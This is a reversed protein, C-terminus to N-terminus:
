SGRSARAAVQFVKKNDNIYWERSSFSSVSRVDKEKGERRRRGEGGEGEGTV